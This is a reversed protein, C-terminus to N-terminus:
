YWYAIARAEVSVRPSVDPPCSPDDFASHPIQHPESPDSDNTKFILAEDRTMDSVYCWRHRPSYRVLLGEFSWEPAGPADFVADAEALDNPTLSRADCVTLPVDQPPQSLVRWINYHAFRRVPKPESRTAFERATPDSNDIHIFRAPLSNFLKGSEPARESFRLLAKGTVVVRDAGTQALILQEVEGAYVSQSADERFDGAATEHPVLTFGERALTPADGQRVDEIMVQRPDLVLNDRAHNQAHYRPRERMPGLYNITAEVLRMCVSEIIWPLTVGAVAWQLESSQSQCPLLIRADAFKMRAV